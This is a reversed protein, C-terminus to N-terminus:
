VAENYTHQRLPDHQQQDHDVNGVAVSRIPAILDCAGEIAGTFLCDKLYLLRLCFHLRTLSAHFLTSPKGWLM